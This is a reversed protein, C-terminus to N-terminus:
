QCLRGCEVPCPCVFDYVYENQTPDIMDAGQADVGVIMLHPIWAGNKGAELGLYYRVQVPNEGMVETLDVKKVTFSNLIDPSNATLFAIANNEWNAQWNTFDTLSIRDKTSPTFVPAEKVTTGASADKEKPAPTECSQFIFLGTLLVLIAIIQNKM